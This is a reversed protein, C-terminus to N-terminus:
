SRGGQARLVFQSEVGQETRTAQAQSVDMAQLDLAAKLDDLAEFDNATVTVTLTSNVYQLQQLTVQKSQTMAESLHSLLVLFTADGGAGLQTLERAILTKPSTVQTAGPYVEAYLALSKAKLAALRHNLILSSTGLYVFHFVLVGAVFLALKEWLGKQQKLRKPAYAQQMLNIPWPKQMAASLQAEFSDTITQINESSSLWVQAEDADCAFGTHEGTRIWTRGASEWQTWASAEYPLVFVDPVVAQVNLHAHWLADLTEALRTKDIVAVTTEEGAHITEPLALHLTEIDSALSEEILGPLAQRIVSLKAQPLLTSVFSVAETPMLYVVLADLAQSKLTDLSMGGHSECSEHTVLFAEVGDAHPKIVWTTM